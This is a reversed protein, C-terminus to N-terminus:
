FLIGDTASQFSIQIQFARIWAKKCRLCFCDNNGVEHSLFWTNRILLRTVANWCECTAQYM